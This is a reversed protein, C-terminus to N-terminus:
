DELSGGSYQENALPTNVDKTFGLRVTRLLELTKAQIEENEV